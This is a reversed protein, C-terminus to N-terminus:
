PEVDARPSATGKPGSVCGSFPPLWMKRRCKRLNEGSSQVGHRQKSFALPHTVYRDVVTSALKALYMWSSRAWMSRQAERASM